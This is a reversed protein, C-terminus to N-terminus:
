CKQATESMRVFKKSNKLLLKIAYVVTQYKSVKTTKGLSANQHKLHEEWAQTKMPPQWWHSWIAKNNNLIKAM